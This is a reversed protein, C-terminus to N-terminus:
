RGVPLRKTMVRDVSVADFHRRGTLRNAEILGYAALTGDELKKYLTARSMALRRATEAPSLWVRPTPTM